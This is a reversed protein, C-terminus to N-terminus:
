ERVVFLANCYATEAPLSQLPEIEYLGIFAYSYGTLCDFVRNFQTDHRNVKNPTVEAYVARIERRSLLGVARDLVAM